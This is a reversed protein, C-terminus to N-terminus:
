SQRELSMCVQVVFKLPVPMIKDEGTTAAAAGVAAGPQLQEAAALGGNLSAQRNRELDSAPRKL